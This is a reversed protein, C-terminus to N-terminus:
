VPWIARIWRRLGGGLRAYHRHQGSLGSNVVSCLRERTPEIEDSVTVRM